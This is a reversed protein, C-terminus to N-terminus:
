LKLREIVGIILKALHPESHAAAKLIEEISAPKLADPLCKDTICSIGLIRLGSHVGVIVEPVTSMGVVDAGIMRLFRYEAKTELNPGTVGVYVGTNLKIKEDQAVDCALKILGNDYPECMDPFRPGLSNDNPGILPNLGMLNIHDVILMLGGVEYLPNMGGAANSVILVSAGLARMVRVPYTVEQLSYGEYYHFRGEMAVVRKGALEGFMLAGKHGVVTSVPFHPILSYNIEKKDKIKGALAGLGTGLIIAIDPKTKVKSRIFESTDKLSQRLDKM